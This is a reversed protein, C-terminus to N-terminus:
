THLHITPGKPAGSKIPNSPSLSNETKVSYTRKSLYSQLRQFYTGHLHPKLKYLLGDHWEKDFVKETDIFLGLRVQKEEFTELIIDTM